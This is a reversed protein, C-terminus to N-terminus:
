GYDICLEYRPAPWSVRQDLVVTEAGALEDELHAEVRVTVAGKRPAPISDSLLLEAVGNPSEALVVSVADDLLGEVAEVLRTRTEDPLDALTVAKQYTEHDKM